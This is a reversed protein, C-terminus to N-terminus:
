RSSVKIVLLCAMLYVTLNTAVEVAFGIKDLTLTQMHGRLVVRSAAVGPYLPFTLAPTWWAHNVLTVLVVVSLVTIVGRRTM